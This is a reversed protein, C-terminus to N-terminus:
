QSALKWLCWLKTEYLLSCVYCYLSVVLSVQCLWHKWWCYISFPFLSLLVLPDTTLSYWTFFHHSMESGMQRRKHPYTIMLLLSILSFFSLIFLLMQHLLYLNWILHIHSEENKSTTKNEQAPILTKFAHEAILMPQLDRKGVESRPSPM